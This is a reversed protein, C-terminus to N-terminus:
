ISANVLDNVILLQNGMNGEIGNDVYMRLMRVIRILRLM